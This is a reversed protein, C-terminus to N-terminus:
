ALAVREISVIAPLHLLTHLRPAPASKGSGSPYACQAGIQRPLILTSYCVSPGGSSARPEQEQRMTILTTGCRYCRCRRRAPVQGLEPFGRGFISEVWARMTAKNGLMLSGSQSSKRVGIKKKAKRRFGVKKIRHVCGILFVQAMTSVNKRLRSVQDAVLPSAPSRVHEQHVGQSLSLVKQLSFLSPAEFIEHFM